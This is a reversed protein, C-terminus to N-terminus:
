KQELPKNTKFRLLINGIILVGMGYHYFKEPIYGQLQPFQDQVLPLGSLVITGIGNFWITASKHVKQLKAKLNTWM